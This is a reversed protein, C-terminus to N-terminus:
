EQSPWYSHCLINSNNNIPHCHWFARDHADLLENFVYVCVYVLSFLLQGGMRPAFATIYTLSMLVVPGSQTTIRSKFFIM